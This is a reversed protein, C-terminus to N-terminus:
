PQVLDRIHALVERARSHISYAPVARHHAARAMVGRELERPLYRRIKEVLEGADSWFECEKGEEYVERAFPTRLHLFFAGAAALEYTRTSDQDGPHVKGNAIVETTVPAVIIKGRRILEGYARGHRAGPFLWHRPFRKRRDVWGPGVLAVSVDADPMLRGVEIMLEEYQSRWSAALVVDIDQLGPPEAWYHVEPDYGHPVCVCRNTYGYVGSWHEPHFPKASIVLDYQGIAKALKRGHTHPSCDPFFNVAHIGLEQVSSITGADVLTGKYVIVADPKLADCRRLLTSALEKRYVPLLLRNMGRVVHGRGKPRYHDEGIDDVQVGQETALAERLSRASSGRWTEGVFILRM